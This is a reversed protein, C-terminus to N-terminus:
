TVLVLYLAIISGPACEEVSGNPYVDVRWSHGAAEFVASEVCEGIGLFQKAYSYGSLKIVHVGTTATASIASASPLPLPAMNPSM